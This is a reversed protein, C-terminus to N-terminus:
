CTESTPRERHRDSPQRLASTPSQHELVRGRASQREVRGEDLVLLRHRPQVQELAEIRRHTLALEPSFVDAAPRPEVLRSYNRFDGAVAQATKIRDIM